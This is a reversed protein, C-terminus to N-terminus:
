FLSIVRWLSATSAKQSTRLSASRKERFYEYVESTYVSNEMVPTNQSTVSLAALFAFRADADTAIEPYLQSAVEIAETVKESYWTAANGTEELAAIAEAAFCM